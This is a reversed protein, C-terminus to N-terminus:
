RTIINTYPEQTKAPRLNVGQPAVSFDARCSFKNWVLSDGCSRM